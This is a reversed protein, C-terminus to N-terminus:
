TSARTRTVNPESLLPGQAVQVGLARLCHLEADTEVGDAIVVAATKKAFTVMSAVFAQSPFHRDIGGTLGADLKIYDPVLQLVHRMGAHGAGAHDVAVRLGAARLPALVAQVAEYDTVPDHETIEIMLSTLPLSAFSETFADSTITAPSVNVSLFGPMLDVVGVANRVALLEFEVGFGHAHATTLWAEYSPFGEPLTCKAESGIVQMRDLTCVPEYRPLPGGQGQLATFREVQRRREDDLRDEEHALEYIVDALGSLVAADRERLDHDAAPSFACLTGYVSGDHRRVPVGIYAAIGLEATVPLEALVPHLTADPIVAEVLGQTMLHCYTETVPHSQGVAIPAESSSSVNRFVRADDEFRSLFAVDMGLQRRVVDLLLDIRSASM